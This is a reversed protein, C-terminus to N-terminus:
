GSPSVRAAIISPGLRSAISSTSTFYGHLHLLLTLAKTPLAKAGDLNPHLVHTRGGETRLRTALRQGDGCARGPAGILCEDVCYRLAAIAGRPTRSQLRSPALTYAAAHFRFDHGAGFVLAVAFRPRRARVFGNHREVVTNFDDDELMGLLAIAREAGGAQGDLMEAVGDQFDPQRPRAEGFNEAARGIRM